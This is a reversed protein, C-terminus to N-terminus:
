FLEVRFIVKEYSMVVGNPEIEELSLGNDVMDGERVIRNNIIILRLESEDAYVHGAFALEPIKGKVNSPLEELLPIVDPGQEVPAPTVTVTEPGPPSPTIKEITEQVIPESNVSKGPKDSPKVPQSPAVAPAAGENQVSQEHDQVTAPIMVAVKSEGELEPIQGNSFQWWLIASLCGVVLVFAVLLPLVPPKRGQHGVPLSHDAELNPIEDRKREKESKKLAELIYSM